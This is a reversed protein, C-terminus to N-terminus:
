LLKGFFSARYLSVSHIIDKKCNSKFTYYKKHSYHDAYFEPDLWIYYTPNRFIQNKARLNSPGFIMKIKQRKCFSYTDLVFSLLELLRLEVNFRLFKFYDDGLKFFFFWLACKRWQKVNENDVSIIVYKLFYHLRSVNRIKWRQQLLALSKM